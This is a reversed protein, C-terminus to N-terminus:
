EILDQDERAMFIGTIHMNAGKFRDNEPLEALKHIDRGFDKIRVLDVM